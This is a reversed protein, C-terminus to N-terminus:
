DMFIADEDMAVGGGFREADAKFVAVSGGASFGPLKGNRYAYLNLTVAVYAGPYMTHVTQHLPRIVPFALLDPEPVALESESNVIAKLEFDVGRNGIVKLTAVAEPALPATKENVEKFPTNYPGAFGPKQLQAALEDTEAKTLSNRKEGRADQEVCFPLFEKIAKDRVKDLQAQELLLQFHPRSDALSKEPYSGRLSLDYAEQVTFSPFSLRGYTTVTQPNPAM